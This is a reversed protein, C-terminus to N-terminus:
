FVFLVFSPFSAGWDVERMRGTALKSWRTFLTVEELEGEETETGFQLGMLMRIMELRVVKEERVGGRLFTPRRFCLPLHSSLSADIPFLSVHALLRPHVKAVGDQSFSAVGFTLVEGYTTVGEESGDELTLQLPLTDTGPIFRFPDLSFRVQVTRALKKGKTTHTRRFEREEEESAWFRAGGDAFSSTM